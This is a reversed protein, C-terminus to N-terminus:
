RMAQWQSEVIERLTSHQPQWGLLETTKTSAGVMIPTDGDRQPHIKAEITVGTVESTVNIVDFVSYGAGTGINFEHRVRNERNMIKLAKAFARASDTVHIYDRVASGDTTAFDAGYVDVDKGGFKIKKLISPILHTENEHHEFLGAEANGGAVNFMRLIVFDFDYAGSFDKIMEEAALTSFGYPSHPMTRYNEPIPVQNIMGYVACSSGYVINKIGAAKMGELVNLTGQVNVRYYDGPNKVSESVVSKAALHVVADISHGQENFFQQMATTDTIDIQHLETGQVNHESGSTLNDIIVTEYDLGKLRLNVHSGIYGAGGTILVKKINKDAM